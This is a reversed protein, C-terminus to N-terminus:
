NNVPKLAGEMFKRGFDNTASIALLPYQTYQNKSLLARMNNVLDVTKINYKAKELCQLLAWTMAGEYTNDIYADASTQDDRCGSISIACAVHSNKNNNQKLSTKYIYPLDLITGSHCCDMMTILTASKPLKAVLNTYIYDDTIMGSTAYDCPCLVEDRGDDEDGDIDRVYSGHGSYSLWLETFGEKTAKSVLTKLASIINSKTPMTSMESKDDLMLMINSRDFGCKGMLFDNINHADNICGNLESETGIYNIGIVVAFKKTASRIYSTTM